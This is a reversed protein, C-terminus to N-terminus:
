PEPDVAPKQIEHALIASFAGRLDGVEYGVAQDAPYRAQIQALTAPEIAELKGHCAMCMAQIRIPKIVRLGDATSQAVPKLEQGAALETQWNKLVKAEFADPAHDPNRPRDSIRRIKLRGDAFASQSLERELEPSITHCHDIAGATGGAVIAAKLEPKLKGQFEAFLKFMHQADASESLDARSDSEPACAFAALLGVLAFWGAFRPIQDKM